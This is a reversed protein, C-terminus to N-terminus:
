LASETSYNLLTVSDNQYMLGVALVYQLKPNQEVKHIVGKDKSNISYSLHGNKANFTMEVNDNNVFRLSHDYENSGRSCKTGFARIGYNFTDSNKHYYGDLCKGPSEDIGIVVCQLQKNIHFKWKHITNDMSNIQLAGYCTVPRTDNLRKVTLTNESVEINSGVRAFCEPQEYYSIIMNIILEVITYFPNNNHASELIEQEGRIYGHTILQVRDEVSYIRRDEPIHETSPKISTKTTHQKKKKGKSSSNGM